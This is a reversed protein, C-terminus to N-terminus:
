VAGRQLLSLALYPVLNLLFIGIKFAAMGAYHIADFREESIKFMRSHFRYMWDHALWFVLFWWSLLGINMVTCWGLFERITESPM